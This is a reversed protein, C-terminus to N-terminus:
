TGEWIKAPTSRKKDDVGETQCPKENSRKGGLPQVNVIKCRGTMVRRLPSQGKTGSRPVSDESDLSKQKVCLLTSYPCFTEKRKKDSIGPWWFVLNKHDEGAPYLAAFL